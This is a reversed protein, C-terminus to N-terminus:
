ASAVSYSSHQIAGLDVAVFWMTFQSNPSSGPNGRWVHSDEHGDSKTSSRKVLLSGYCSLTTVSPSSSQIFSPVFSYIVM